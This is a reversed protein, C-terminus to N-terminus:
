WGGSFILLLILLILGGAIWAVSRRGGRGRGGPREDEFSMDESGPLDLDDYAADGSWGTEEDSGCAPCSLSGGPVQAGCNPCGFWDDEDHM